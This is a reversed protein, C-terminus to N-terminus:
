VFYLKYISKNIKIFEEDTIAKINIYKSYILNEVMKKLTQFDCKVNIYENTLINFLIYKTEKRFLEIKNNVETNLRIIKPQKKEDILHNIGTLENNLKCLNNEIDTIELKIDDINVHNIVSLILIKPIDIIINNNNKVKVNGTTKYIKVIEGIEENFLKYKIEDGISYGDREKYVANNKYDILKKNDIFIEKNIKEKIHLLDITSKNIIEDKNKNFDDVICKIRKIKALEYMYMYLALQLHHEKQLKQVCKFEYVINNKYDICDIHGILKRNLLEIENECELRYEFTSDISINLNTLRNICENLKQKDLWEYNTIQYFKFLYGNKLTNWCNAIYLLEEPSLNTIDIDNINLKKYKPKNPLRILCGDNYNSGNNTIRKEFETEVLENFISMKNTLKLEFMNPIAIGTIESVSETTDESSIKLPINIKSIKYTKNSTINLQNVCEDIINQPLYKIIDTISTNINKLLNNNCKIILPM